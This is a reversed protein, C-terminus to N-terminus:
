KGRRRAEVAFSYTKPRANKCSAYMITSKSWPFKETECASKGALGMGLMIAMSWEGGGDPDAVFGVCGGAM